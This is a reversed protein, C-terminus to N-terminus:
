CSSDAFFEIYQRGLDIALNWLSALALFYESMNRPFVVDTVELTLLASFELCKPAFHMIGSMANRFNPLSFYKPLNFNVLGLTTLNSNKTLSNSNRAMDVMGKELLADILANYAFEDPSLGREEMKVWVVFIPRLFGWRGFKRILLVYTDMQSLVGSKFMRDFLDLIERPKELCTFLCHYTIVNPPCGCGSLCRMHRRLCEM